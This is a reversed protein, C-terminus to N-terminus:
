GNNGEMKNGCYPCYDFLQEGYDTDHYASHFCNSCYYDWSWFKGDRTTDEKRTPKIGMANLTEGKVWMSM